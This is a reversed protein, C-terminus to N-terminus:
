IGNEGCFVRFRETNYNDLHFFIKSYAWVDFKECIKQKDYVCHNSKSMTISINERYEKKDHTNLDIGPFTFSFGDICLKKMQADGALGFKDMIMYMKLLNLGMSMALIENANHKKGEISVIINSLFVAGCMCSAQKHRDITGGIVNNKCYNSFEFFKSKIKNYPHDKFKGNWNLGLNENRNLIEKVYVELVDRQLVEYVSNIGMVKQM